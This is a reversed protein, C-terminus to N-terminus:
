EIDAAEQSLPDNGSPEHAADPDKGEKLAEYLAKLEQAMKASGIAKQAQEIQKMADRRLQEPPIATDMLTARVILIACQGLWEHAREMDTLPPNGLQEVSNLWLEKWDGRRNRAADREAHKKEVARKGGSKKSPM